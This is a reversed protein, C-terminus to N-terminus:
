ECPIRNVVGDQKAADVIDKPGVLHSYKTTRTLPFSSSMPYILSTSKLEEMSERRAQEPSESLPSSALTFPVRFTPPAFFPFLFPSLSGTIM